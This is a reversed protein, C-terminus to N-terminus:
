DGGGVPGDHRITCDSYYRRCEDRIRRAEQYTACRVLEREADEPREARGREGRIFVVFCEEFTSTSM